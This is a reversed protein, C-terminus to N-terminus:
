ILSKIQRHATAFIVEGMIGFTGKVLFMEITMFIGILPNESKDKVEVPSVPTLIVTTFETKPVIFAMKGIERWDAVAEDKEGTWFKVM